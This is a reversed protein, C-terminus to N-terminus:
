SAKKTKADTKERGRNIFGVHYCPTTCACDMRYVVVEIGDLMLANELVNKVSLEQPPATKDLSGIKYTEHWFCGDIPLSHLTSVSLKWRNKTATTTITKKLQEITNEM